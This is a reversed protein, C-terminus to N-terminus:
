KLSASSKTDLRPDWAPGALSWPAIRSVAVLQYFPKLCMRRTINGRAALLVEHASLSEAVLQYFSNLCMSQTINGRAALLFEHTKKQVLTLFCSRM